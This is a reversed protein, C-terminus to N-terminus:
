PLDSAPGLDEVAWFGGIITYNASTARGADPQGLTINALYAASSHAGGGGDFTFWNIATQANASVTLGALTFWLTFRKMAGTRLSQNKDVQGHRASLVFFSEVHDAM